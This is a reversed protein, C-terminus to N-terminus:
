SSKHRTESQIRGAGDYANAYAMVTTAGLLHNENTLRRAFDYGYITKGVLAGGAAANYRRSESRDGNQNYAYEVRVGIASQSRSTLQHKADFTSLVTGGKSDVLSSRDGAANYGSTLKAPGTVAFWNLRCTTCRISIPFATAFQASCHPM